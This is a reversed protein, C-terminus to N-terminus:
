LGEFNFSNSTGGTKPTEQKRQNRGWEKYKKFSTNVQSRHNDKVKFPNDEKYIAFDKISEIMDLEPYREKLRNYMELDKARDFPYDNITKLVDMFQAEEPKLIIINEKEKDLEKDIDIDTDQSGQITRSMDNVDEIVDPATLLKQKERSKQKALRNYERISELKDSNQHKEWNTICLGMEDQDIMNLKRFTELALRITNPPIRFEDALMEPTYPINETLFIYGRTNCKGAQTLLMIWTLLIDNGEPLTRIFKIKSDDFMDVSLKIWKVELKEGEEM